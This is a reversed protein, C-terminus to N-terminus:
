HSFLVACSAHEFLDRTVGGFVQERARSHSYGGAVVLSAGSRAAHELIRTGASEGELDLRALRAAIGHRAFHALALDDEVNSTGNDREGEVMLLDVSGAKRLLPMADHLARAAERTAKWAVVAHGSVAGAGHPVLLLPRGSGALLGAFLRKEQDDPLDGRGLVTLDTYRACMAAMEATTLWLTTCRRVENEVGRVAAAHELRRKVADAAAAVTAEAADKMTERFGEPYYAWVAANPLVLSAGVLAAVRAQMSGALDCAVDIATAPIDNGLVPVLFDKYM